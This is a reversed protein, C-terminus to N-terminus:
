DEKFYFQGDFSSTEWPIQLGETMAYLRKRVKKFVDYIGIGPVQIARTLEEIYIRENFRHDSPVNLPTSSFAIISNFPPNLHALGSYAPKIFFRHIPNKPPVDFIAISLFNSQLCVRDLVLEMDVAEFEIDLEKEIQADVPILYNHGELQIGHGMFYFFVSLV